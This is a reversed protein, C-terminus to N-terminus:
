HDPPAAADTEAAASREREMRSWFFGLYGATIMNCVACVMWPRLDQVVNVRVMYGAFCGITLSNVFGIIVGRRTGSSVGIAGAVSGLLCLVLILIAAGVFLQGILLFIAIMPHAGETQMGRLTDFCRLIWIVFPVTNAVLVLAALTLGVQRVPSHM